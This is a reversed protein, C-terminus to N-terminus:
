GPGSYIAKAKPSLLLAVVILLLLWGGWKPEVDMLVAILVVGGFLYAWQSANM